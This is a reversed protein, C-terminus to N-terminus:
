KRVRAAAHPPSVKDFLWAFVFTYVLFFVLLSTELVLAELLSVKLLWAVVPLLLVVLGGEFGIAHVIRHKLTRTQSVQRKEWSEFLTTWVYNWLMATTSAAVAVVGSQGAGFGFVALGVTTLLIAGLEYSIVYVIRRTVPSM